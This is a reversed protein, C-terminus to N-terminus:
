FSIVTRLGLVTATERQGLRPNMAPNFLFQLDGQLLMWRTSFPLVGHEEAKQRWAWAGALQCPDNAPAPPNVQALLTM